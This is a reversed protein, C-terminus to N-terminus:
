AATLKEPDPSELRFSGFCFCLEAGDPRVILTVQPGFSKNLPNEPYICCWMDQPTHASPNTRSAFPLLEVRGAWKDAASDALELLRYRLNKLAEREIETLQSYSPRGKFSNILHSDKASFVPYVM